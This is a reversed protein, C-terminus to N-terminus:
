EEPAKVIGEKLLAEYATEMDDLLKQADPTKQSVVFYAGFSSIENFNLNPVDVAKLAKESPGRYDLLYDARGAKLMKFATEHSDTETFKVKSAPDKIFNVWGGYSYGRMILVNKGSLDEKSAIPPKEGIVYARLSIQAVKHKGILTTDKFEPLTSLGIWLDIGGEALEKAMRKTPFSRASWEYGARTLVQDALDILFGEAEGQANTSFVPPFEIYGIEVTKAASALGAGVLLFLSVAAALAIFHKRM